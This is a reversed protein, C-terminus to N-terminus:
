LASNIISDPIEEDVVKFMSRMFSIFKKYKEDNMEIHSDFDVNSNNGILIKM